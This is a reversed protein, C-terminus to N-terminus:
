ETRSWESSTSLIHCGVFHKSQLSVQSRERTFSTSQGLSYGQKLYLMNIRNNNKKKVVSIFESGIIENRSKRGRFAKRKVGRLAHFYLYVYL